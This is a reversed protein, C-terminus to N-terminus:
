DVHPDIAESLSVKFSTAFSTDLGLYLLIATLIRRSNECFINSWRLQTFRVMKEGPNIRRMIPFQAPQPHYTRYARFRPHENRYPIPNISQSLTMATLHLSLGPM